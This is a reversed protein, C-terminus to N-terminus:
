GGGMAHRANGSSDTGYRRLPVLRLPPVLGADALSAFADQEADDLELAEPPRSLLVNIVCVDFAVFRGACTDCDILM